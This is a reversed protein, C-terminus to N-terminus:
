YMTFCFPLFFLLSVAWMKMNGDDDRGFSVRAIRNLMRMAVVIYFIQIVLDLMWAFLRRHFPPATFEIDINFNTPIRVVSM